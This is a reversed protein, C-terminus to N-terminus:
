PAEWDEIALGPIRAFEGVNHTVLTLSHALAIAAIMLDYHGIMLGVAELAISHRVYLRAAAADYPFSHYPALFNAVKVAERAPNASRLAGYELEAIVIPCVSLDTPLHRSFHRPIVANKGRMYQICTNSDLLYTM